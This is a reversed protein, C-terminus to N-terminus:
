VSGKSQDSAQQARIVAQLSRRYARQTSISKYVWWIGLLTALALGGYVLYVSVILVKLVSVGIFPVLAGALLFFGCGHTMSGFFGSPGSSLDRERSPSPSPGPSKRDFMPDFQATKSDTDYEM